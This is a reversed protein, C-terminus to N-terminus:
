CSIIRDSKKKTISLKIDLDTDKTSCATKTVSKTEEEATLTAYGTNNSPKRDTVIGTIEVSVNQYSYRSENLSNVGYMTVIM